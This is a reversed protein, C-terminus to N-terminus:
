RRKSIILFIVGIAAIIGIGIILNNVNNLSSPSQHPVFVNFSAVNISDKSTVRLLVQHTGDDPFLYKM